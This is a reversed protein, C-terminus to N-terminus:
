LPDAAGFEEQRSAAESAAVQHALVLAEERAHPFAVARGVDGVYRWGADAVWARLGGLAGDTVGWRGSVEDRKVVVYGGWPCPVPVWFETALALQEELSLRVPAPRGSCPSEAEPLNTM